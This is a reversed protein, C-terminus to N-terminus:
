LDSPNPQQPQWNEVQPQGQPTLALEGNRKKILTAIRQEAENLRSNCSHILRDAEEYLTLSRDLSVNGSNLEELIAEIRAYAAEYQFAQQNDEEPNAKM